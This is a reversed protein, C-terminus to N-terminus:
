RRFREATLDRAVKVLSTEELADLVIILDETHLDMWRTSGDYTIGAMDVDHRLREIAALLKGQEIM